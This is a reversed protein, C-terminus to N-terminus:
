EGDVWKRITADFDELSGYTFGGKDLVLSGGDKAIELLYVKADSKASSFATSPYVLPSGDPLIVTAKEDSFYITRKRAKPGALTVDRVNRKVASPVM